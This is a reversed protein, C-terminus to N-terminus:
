TEQAEEFGEDTSGFRRTRQLSSKRQLGRRFTSGVREDPEVSRRAFRMEQRPLDQLLPALAKMIAEPGFGRRALLGMLRRQATERDIAGMRALRKAAVERAQEAADVEGMAEQVVQAALGREVGKRVLDALLRRTGHERHSRIYSEAYERDNLWGGAELRDIISDVLEPPYSRALRRGLEKVSRPSVALLTLASDWAKKKMELQYARLLQEGDVPQGVKFGCRHVTELDLGLVFEGDLFLSRRSPDKQEELASIRGERYQLAEPDVPRKSKRSLPGTAGAGRQKSM